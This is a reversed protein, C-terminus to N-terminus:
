LPEKTEELSNQISKLLSPLVDVNEKHCGFPLIAMSVSMLWIYALNSYTRAALRSRLQIHLFLMLINRALRM